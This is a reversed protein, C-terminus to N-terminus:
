IGGGRVLLKETDEIGYRVGEIISIIDKTEYELKNVFYMLPAISTARQKALKSLKGLYFRYMSIQMYEDDKENLYFGLKAAAEKIENNYDKSYIIAKIKKFGLGGGLMTYNLLEEDLMNHYNKARYIWQLNLLDIMLAVTEVILGRDDSAMKDASKILNKFYISDLVMDLHFEIKNIDEQDVSIFAEEFISGKVIAMVESINTVALLKDFDVHEKSRDHMMHDGLELTSEKRYITRLVLKLDRVEYRFLLADIFGRYNGDLFTRLKNFDVVIEKLIILEIEWRKLQEINYSSFVSKYRTNDHLYRAIARESGLKELERYNERSVLGPSMAKIKTNLASFRGISGM